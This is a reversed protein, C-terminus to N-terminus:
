NTEKSFLNLSNRCANPHFFGCKGTCGKENDEKGGFQNFKRCIKPHSFKCSGDMKNCMSYRGHKFINLYKENM